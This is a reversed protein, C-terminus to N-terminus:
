KWFRAMFSRIEPLNQNEKIYVNALRIFYEGNKDDSHDKTIFDKMAFLREESTTNFNKLVFFVAAVCDRLTATKSVWESIEPSIKYGEPLELGQAELFGKAMLFHGRPTPHVRDDNYLTESVMARTMYANMDFFEYGGVEAFRKIYQAYGLLLAYGGRFATSATNQYEAYPPPSCLILEAGVAKVKEAFKALNKCFNGYFGALREYVQLDCNALLDRGSDNVGMMFVIHTPKYPAVDEEFVPLAANGVAAGSIGCNFFEVKDEPFNEKYYSAIYAVHRNAHTISDGVFCVRANKPFRKM